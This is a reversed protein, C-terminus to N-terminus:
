FKIFNALLAIIFGLIAGALVQKKTHGVREKMKPYTENIEDSNELDKVLDNIVEGQAGIYSRLGVADRLVIISIFLMIAFFPSNFGLKLGLLTTLSVTAAAHSSPMGSYAFLSRWSLKLHNAKILFKSAQAIIFAILTVIIFSYSM